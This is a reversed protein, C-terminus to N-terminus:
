EAPAVLRYSVHNVFGDLRLAGQEDVQVTVGGAEKQDHVLIGHSRWWGVKAEDLRESKPYDANSAIIARPAVATVFEDGLSLDGRHHGAVLVDARLDVGSELMQRETKLGADNVFLIKWGHWHLRYIAVHDDAIGEPKQPDPAWVVELSADDPFPLSLGPRAFLLRTGHAPADVLWAKYLPSRSREVPMLVQRVTGPDLLEKGGGVHGGDAHSLAM